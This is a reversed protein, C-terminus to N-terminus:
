EGASAKLEELCAMARELMKGQERLIAIVVTEFAWLRSAM